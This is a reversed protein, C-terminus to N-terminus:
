FYNFFLVNKNFLQLRTKLRVFVFLFFSRRLKFRLLLSNLALSIDFPQFALWWLDLVVIVQLKNFVLFIFYPVQFIFEISGSEFNFLKLLVANFIPFLQFLKLLQFLFDFSEFSNDCLDISGFISLYLKQNRREIVKSIFIDSHELDDFLSCKGELSIFFFMSGYKEYSWDNRSIGEFPM